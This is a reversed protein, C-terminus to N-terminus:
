NKMGTKKTLCTLCSLTCHKNRKSPGLKSLHSQAVTLSKFSGENTVGGHLAMEVEKQRQTKVFIKPHTVRM